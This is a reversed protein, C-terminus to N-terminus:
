RLFNPKLRLVGSADKMKPLGCIGGVGCGRPPPVRLDRRVSHTALISIQNGESKM